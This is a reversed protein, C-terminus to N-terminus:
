ATKSAGRLQIQVISHTTVGQVAKSAPKNDTPQAIVLFAVDDILRKQVDIYIQKRAEADLEAIGNALMDDVEPFAYGVRKAASGTSAGFPDSYSSVDAFDPTWSSYTFQLKGARYDELRQAPDMPNLKVTLGNIKQLDSQVKAALTDNSVGGATSAGAGFTFTVEVPGVGTGDFLEQAKALDTVYKLDEVEDAGQLGLPVITAPRVGNGKMLDGIFGDYDFAYAIAQRFEKIAFPGGPDEQTHMALYDIALTPGSIVQLDANAKIEELQDPDVSYAIDSEGTVVSQTQETPVVINRFIVRELAPAEGWYDPNAEIMVEGNIDFETMIFPGTGVSTNADHWDKFTDTKDADEADTAGNEKAFASDIVGLPATTLIPVLAANPASLTLKITQPDVAEVSTWYDTALFAAQWKINKTRNWSFVVDDATMVNGTNHFKVGDRLTITATLGDESFVPFDTALLPTIETPKTSDIITYLPEYVVNEAAQSNIEYIWGPDLTIWADKLDDAIVLTTADAQAVHATFRTGSGPAADAHGSLAQAIATASFGAVIARQLFQRRTIQGAALEAALASIQQKAM